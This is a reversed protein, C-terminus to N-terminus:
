PCRGGNNYTDFATKLVIAQARQAATLSYHGTPGIYNIAILFSNAANITADICPDTGLVCRNLKAALLHGALCGIADQDGSSACNMLTFIQGALSIGGVPFTGLTLVPPGILCRPTGWNAWPGSTSCSGYRLGRCDPDTPTKSLHNKWYGPTVPPAYCPSVTISASKTCGNADKVTVTHSGAALGTFTYPSTAAAYAGADIKIQYPATGGGFTATISQNSGGSCGVQLGLTLAGPQPINGTTTATCSNADTVTFSYTGASRSFTGTGNYPATGGTASVTVTSSGGNCLIATNSSSASLATPQTINGTTTATCSNADTVTYSYTGASRSATGTGSYPPTGGTASVTVTSSGGNCLIATNSSSASLASPQTVSGTTTATCSNADTVTYSYTGASRSVTGTGQYPPTGGSASVTV